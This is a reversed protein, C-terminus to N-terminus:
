DGRPDGDGRGDAGDPGGQGRRGGAQAGGELGSEAGDGGVFADPHRTGAGGRGWEWQTGMVAAMVAAAPARLVPLREALLLGGAASLPM